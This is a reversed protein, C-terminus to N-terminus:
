SIINYSKDEYSYHHYEATTGNGSVFGIQEWGSGARREVYYGKNNVETSTAWNLVAKHDILGASFSILEVPIVGSKGSIVTLASTLGSPPLTVLAVIDGIGDGTFDAYVPSATGWYVGARMIYNFTGDGNNIYISLDNSAQNGVMIDKFGDGNLDGTTIGSVNLLDPSYAGDYNQASQFSGDGNGILVSMGSTSSFTSAAIDSIGDNNFDDIVVDQPNLQTAYSEPSQFQGNGLGIHVDISNSQGTVLDIIEDGNLDKAELTSPFPDVIFYTAAAFTGNGNNKSIFIRKASEPVDPCGLWETIVADLDGDNDIDLADIDSWGCSGVSWTQVTGFTGDGNNLATHFDYPPSGISTAFILDPYGDNNLDRFKAQVGGSRETYTIQDAFTGDGNNKLVAVQSGVAARGSASTVIDLDGDLDIDAADISGAISNTLYQPPNLFVGDGPNLRVTVEMSYNDATLVDVDGDNNVDSLSLNFTGQGAPFLSPSLFGGSGNNMLVEFGDTNRGDYSDGVIDKWGDNNLDATEIDVSGSTFPTLILPEPSIFTGDGANRFIAIAPEFNSNTGTSSYLADIDGDNDIDSLAISQYFDGAIPSFVNYETKNSFDIGGSNILVNMKQGANAIVLDPLNDNNILESAIKYPGSGSPFTIQNSFTGNGNNILISVTNGQGNFGYNAVALDEYGDNNFDSSTLGVPGTGTNYNVASNFTGNGNNIFVSISNGESNAGTNSVAIDNFMDNNFDSIVIDLTPNPSAYHTPTGYFGNGDNFIVAFGNGFPSESVAADIDGDNDIDATKLSTPFRGNNFNGTNFGYWTNKFVDLTTQSTAECTFILSFIIFPIIKGTKSISQNFVHM